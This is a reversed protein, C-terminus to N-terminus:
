PSENTPKAHKWEVGHGKLHRLIFDYCKRARGVYEPPHIGTQDYMGAVVMRAAAACTFGTTRAMSSLGTEPDRHDLLDYRHTVSKGDERGSIRVQMVTFEPEDEELEWKPLLVKSTLDIPRIFQGNVEIPETDFLGTQRFRLMLERHGPYRLTKEEMNPVPFTYVLSRLGDTIFGELTGIGPVEIFEPEALAELTILQGNRIIRAPRTYEEIVDIPSFPAKYEFPQHRAVPLGGVLCTFSEIEMHDVHHGLFLNSMGPAVGIDVIALANNEIALQHLDLANEPAFSIDVVRKGVRILTELMAYGFQGPVAGIVLDFPEAFAALAKSDTVDVIETPIKYASGLKHLADENVDAVTLEFDTHLDFVLAQAMRGAGLICISQKAM